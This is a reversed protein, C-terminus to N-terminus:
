NVLVTEDLRDLRGKAEKLGVRVTEVGGTIMVLGAKAGPPKKINRCRTLSVKIIGSGGTNCKSQRAALAAADNIVETSLANDDSRIVVHSGPCGSAHMWWNTGDRHEASTSLEDNDEAQKGVRIETGDKTFYRKYPRRQVVPDRNKKKKTRVQRVPSSDNIELEIALAALSAPLVVDGGSKKIKSVGEELQMLQKLRAQLAELEIKYGEVNPISELEELSAESEKEVIEEMQKEANRYRISAKAIKKHNRLIVRTIEKKFEKINWPSTVTKKNVSTDEEKTSDNNNNNDDLSLFTYTATTCQQKKVRNLDNSKKERSFYPKKQYPSSLLQRSNSTKTRITSLLSLACRSRFPLLLFFPAAIMKM